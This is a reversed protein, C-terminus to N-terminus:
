VERTPREGFVASGIRLSTAGMAVALEFDGSMGMSLGSGLAAKYEKSYDNMKQFAHKVEHHHDPICMLGLPQISHYQAINKALSSLESLAFGGKTAEEDVNVQFYCQITRRMQAARNAIEELLKFSDVSHITKVYPLITKAKNTQLHGIFHFDVELVGMAELKAKKDILEQVYNEGFTKQGEEYALMIKEIPQLKSVAVLEPVHNFGAKQAAKAIRNKIDQLDSM